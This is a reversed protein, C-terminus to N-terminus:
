IRLVGDFLSEEDPTLKGNKEVELNKSSICPTDLNILRQTIENQIDVFFDPYEFSVINERIPYQEEPINNKVCWNIVDSYEKDAKKKNNEYMTIANRNIASITETNLKYKDISNLKDLNAEIYMSKLEIEDRKVVELIDEKNFIIKYREYARKWGYEEDLKKNLKSYFEEDKYAAHVHRKSEFGMQKLINREANLLKRKEEDNAVRHKEAQRKEASNEVLMTQVEYKILCRDKMNKLSSELIERLRQNCRQYFKNLAKNMEYESIDHDSMVESLDSVNVNKYNSNIMGLVKWLQNRTSYYVYKGNKQKALIRMLINEIYKVYVNRKKRGDSIPLPDDYISLIIFKRGKKEFDFYREWRKLQAIKSNGECKSEGLAKCLAGYQKYVQGQELNITNVEPSIDKENKDSKKYKHLQEQLEDCVVDVLMQMTDVAMQFDYLETFLESLTKTAVALVYEHLPSLKYFTTNDVLYEDIKDKSVSELGNMELYKNAISIFLAIEYVSRILSSYRPAKEKTNREFTEILNKESESMQQFYKYMEREFLGQKGTKVQQYEYFIEKAPPEYGQYRYMIKRLENLTRSKVM